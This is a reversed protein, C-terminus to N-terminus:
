SSKTKEVKTFADAINFSSGAFSKEDIKKSSYANKVFRLDIM